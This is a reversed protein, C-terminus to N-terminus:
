PSGGDQSVKFEECFEAFREAVFESAGKIYKLSPKLRIRHSLVSVLAEGVHKLEVVSKKDLYANSQAREYIGLSARVSPHKELDKSNRLLRIFHIVTSLLKDPFEVFNKGNLKVIKEEISQKEPPHMYILDFRDLFVDSLPETSSEEPNMTGVFIFDADLDVDYSGVTVKREELAQLLANQLKESCRNVEDFFLIGKDAKFIKGPSFAQSSLPGFEIAKIPDIDGILDEATLDPSGQVRVFPADVLAGDINKKPLLKSLSKVLTTKGIGPPGVIISHRRMLICSKLQNKVDEQGLVEDFNKEVISKEFDYNDM